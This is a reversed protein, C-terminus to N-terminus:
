SPSKQYETVVYGAQRVAKRIAAEDPVTKCLVTARHDDISVRAWVGDMGCLANEVKRACNECTMGDIRLLVKHPYHAQNRDAAVSRKELTEHEGCCSDGRRYKRATRWAAWGIVLGLLILLFANM